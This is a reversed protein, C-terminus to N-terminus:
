KDPRSPPDGHRATLLQVLLKRVRELPTAEAAVPDPERPNTATDPPTTTSWSPM